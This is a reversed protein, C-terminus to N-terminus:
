AGDFRWRMLWGVGLVYSRGLIELLNPSLQIGDLSHQCLDEPASVVSPPNAALCATSRGIQDFCIEIFDNLLPGACDFLHQSRGGLLRQGVHSQQLFNRMVLLSQIARAHSVREDTEHAMETIGVVQLSVDMEPAM